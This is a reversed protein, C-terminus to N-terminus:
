GSDRRIRCLNEVFRGSCRPWAFSAVITSCNGRASSMTDGNRSGIWTAAPVEEALTWQPLKLTLLLGRINVEAHTVISEVADLTYEPAVNM